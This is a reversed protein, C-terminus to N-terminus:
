TVSTRILDLAERDSAMSGSASRCNGHMPTYSCLLLLFGVRTGGESKNERWFGLFCFKRRVVRM